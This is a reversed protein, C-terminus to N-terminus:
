VTKVRSVAYSKQSFEIFGKDKRSSIHVGEKWQDLSHRIATVVLAIVENHLARDDDVFFDQHIVGISHQDAFWAKNIVMQITPHRFVTNPVTINNYNTCLYAPNTVLLSYLGRNYERTADDQTTCRKFPFHEATVSSSVTRVDGRTQPGRQTLTTSISNEPVGSMDVGQEVMAERSESLDEASSPFANETIYRARQYGYGGEVVKGTLSDQIGDLRKLRKQGKPQEQRRKVDSVKLDTSLSSESNDIQASAIMTMNGRVGNVETTPDFMTPLTVSASAHPTTTGAHTSTTHGAQAQVTSDDTLVAEPRLPMATGQPRYNLSQPVLERVSASREHGQPTRSSLFDDSVMPARLPPVDISGIDQSVNGYQDHYEDLVSDGKDTTGIAYNWVLDQHNGFMSVGQLDFVASTSLADFTFSAGAQQTETSDFFDVSQTQQMGRNVTDRHAESTVRVSLLHVPPSPAAIGSHTVAHGVNSEPEPIARHQPKDTLVTATEKALLNRARSAQRKESTAKSKAQAEDFQLIRASRVHPRNGKGTIAPNQQEFDVGFNTNQMRPQM